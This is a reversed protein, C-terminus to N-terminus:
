RTQKQKDEKSAEKWGRQADAAARGLDRAANRAAQDAQKNAKYALKGVREALTPHASNHDATDDRRSVCSIGGFLILLALGLFKLKGTTVPTGMGVKIIAQWDLSRCTPLCTLIDPKHARPTDAPATECAAM